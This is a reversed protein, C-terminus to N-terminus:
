RSPKCNDGYSCEGTNEFQHCVRKVAEAAPAAAAPEPISLKPVAKAKAKAKAVPDVVGPLAKEKQGNM